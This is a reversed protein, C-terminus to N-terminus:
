RPRFDRILTDLEGATLTSRGGPSIRISVDRGKVIVADFASLYPGLEPLKELLKFSAESFPEVAVTRGDADHAADTWVGEVLRFTRGAVIRMAAPDVRAQRASSVTLQDVIAREATVVESQSRADRLLSAAKASDVAAQGTVTAPPAPAAPPPAVAGAAGAAFGFGTGSGSGTGRGGAAGFTVPARVNALAPEQVLYATYESLLGYRLALDKIEAVREPTSGEIRINRTLEGLKRAAWLGPIYDGTTAHAPFELRAAYRESQGGRRGAVTLQGAANSGSSEYRGFVVLDQGAYLDPLKAPQVDKLRVPSGALSLDVLVPLRIRNAMTGVAEEVSRGPEVYDVTGRGAVAIRELLYTNLDYGVGFTFIRAGSAAAEVRAAIRDPNSEGVTPQGDTIFVVIHLRGTGAPTRLVEDLAGSINTGGSAVLRDVWGRADDLAARTAESWEPRHSQVQNAFAVMRFRDRPGLSGLLQRLAERAQEMKEGSMSGSTDVVVAVDRPEAAARVAGPSLTLMFYGDEGNVRHAALSIGVGPTALPLFVEFRGDPNAAPRVSLRDRDRTVQLRHTPSFPEGYRAANDAVLTFTLPAADAPASATAAGAPTVASSARARGSVYRFRLADGARDLVQTYRLRVNRTENPGFPFVRARLLGNGALEILAPDRRRRVIEEYIARAKTVDMTEGKLEEEGQFLSFDSFVTEGPLPYIYDGEAVGGGTNRFWEEVEVRAVRDAIRVTVSTRLREVRNHPVGTRAVIPEIWGQAAAPVPLFFLVALVLWRM